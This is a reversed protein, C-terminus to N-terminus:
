EMYDYIIKSNYIKKEEDNKVRGLMELFKTTHTIFSRKTMKIAYDSKLNKIKQKKAWLIASKRIESTTIIKNKELNLCDISILLIRDIRRLAEICMKQKYLYKLYESREASLPANQRQQITSPYRYLKKFM